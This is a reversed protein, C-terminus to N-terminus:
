SNIVGWTLCCVGVLVVSFAYLYLYFVCVAVFFAHVYTRTHVKEPATPDLFKMTTLSIYEQACSARIRSWTMKETPDDKIAKM